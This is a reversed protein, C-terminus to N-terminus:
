RPHRRAGPIDYFSPLPKASLNITASRKRMQEVLVKREDEKLLETFLKHSSVAFVLTLDELGECLTRGLLSSNTIQPYRHRDALVSAATDSVEHLQGHTTQVDRISWGKGAFTRLGAALFVVVTDCTQLHNTVHRGYVGSCLVTVELIFDVMRRGPKFLLQQFRVSLVEGELADRVANCVCLKHCM